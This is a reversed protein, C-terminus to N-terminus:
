TNSCLKETSTCTNQRSLTKYSCISSVACNPYGQTARRGASGTGNLWPDSVRKTSSSLSDRYHPYKRSFKGWLVQRFFIMIIQM